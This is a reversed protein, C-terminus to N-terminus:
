LKTIYFEIEIGVVYTWQKADLEKLIKKLINRTDFPCPQGSQFHMDSLIWGTKHAWPLIKFTTPDPVLIADPGGSLEPIGIGADPEFMPAFMNNTTDFFLTATQFDIGNNLTQIFDKAMVNKGRVIGHQDGWAIRITQLNDKKVQEIIELSLLKKDQSWLGHEEIFDTKGVSGKDLSM